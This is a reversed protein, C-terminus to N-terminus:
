SVSINSGFDSLHEWNYDDSEQDVDLLQELSLLSQSQDDLSHELNNDVDDNRQSDMGMRKAERPNVPDGM